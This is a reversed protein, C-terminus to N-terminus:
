FYLFCMIVILFELSNKNKCFLMIMTHFIRLHCFANQELNSLIERTKSMFINKLNYKISIYPIRVCCFCNRQLTWILPSLTCESFININEEITLFSKYKSTVNRRILSASSLFVPSLHDFEHMNSIQSNLSIFSVSSHAIFSVKHKVYTLM